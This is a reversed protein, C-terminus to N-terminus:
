VKKRFTFIKVMLDFSNVMAMWKTILGVEKMNGEMEENISEMEMFKGKRLNAKMGVEM